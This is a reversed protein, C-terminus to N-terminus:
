RNSIPFCTLDRGIEKRTWLIQKSTGIAFYSLQNKLRMMWLPNYQTDAPFQFNTSRHLRASEQSSISVARKILRMFVTLWTAFFKWFTPGSIQLGSEIWDVHSRSKYLLSACGSCPVNAFSACFILLNWLRFVRSSSVNCKIVRGSWCVAVVLSSKGGGFNSSDVKVFKYKSIKVLFPYAGDLDRSM